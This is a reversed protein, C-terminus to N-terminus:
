NAQASLLSFFRQSPDEADPSGKLTDRHHPHSLDVMSPGNVHASDTVITREIFKWAGDRKEYKGLYRGGVVVDVVRDGASFTHTAVTYIEGEASDGSIAFKVTTIHHQMSRIYPRAAALVANCVTRAEILPGRGEVLLIRM